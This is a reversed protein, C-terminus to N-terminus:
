EMEKIKFHVEHLRKRAKIIEPDSRLASMNMIKLTLEIREQILNSLESKESIRESKKLTKIGFKRVFYYITAPAQKTERAIEPVSKRKQNIQYDLWSSQQYNKVNM